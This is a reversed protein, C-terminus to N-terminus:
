TIPASGGTLGATVESALLMGAVAPVFSVSGIYKKNREEPIHRYIDPVRRPAETSHVVKLAEVGHRKMLKRMKRALPCGHGATDSIDGIRLALPNTRNGAGM